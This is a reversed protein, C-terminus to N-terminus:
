WEGSPLLQAGKIIQPSIMIMLESEINSFTTSSFL